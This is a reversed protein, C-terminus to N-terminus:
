DTSQPVVHVLWAGHGKVCGALCYGVHVTLVTILDSLHSVLTVFRLQICQCFLSRGCLPCGSRKERCQLMVKKSWKFPMITTTDNEHVRVIPSVSLALSFCTARYGDGLMIRLADKLKSTSTIHYYRQYDRKRGSGNMEQTCRIYQMVPVCFLLTQYSVSCLM